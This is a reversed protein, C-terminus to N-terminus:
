RTFHRKGFDHEILTQKQQSKSHRVKRNGLYLRDRWIKVQVIDKVYTTNQHEVEVEIMTNGRVRSMGAADDSTFDINQSVHIWPFWWTKDQEFLAGGSKRLWIWM